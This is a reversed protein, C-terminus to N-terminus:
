VIPRRKVQGLRLSVAALTLGDFSNLIIELSDGEIDAVDLTRSQGCFRAVKPSELGKRLAGVATGQRLGLAIIKESEISLQTLLFFQIV